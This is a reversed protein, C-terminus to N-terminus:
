PTVESAHLATHGEELDSVDCGLNWAAKQYAREMALGNTRTTGVKEFRFMVFDGTKKNKLIKEM